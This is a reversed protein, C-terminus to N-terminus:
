LIEARQRRTEPSSLRSRKDTFVPADQHMNQNFYKAKKSKQKLLKEKVVEQVKPKLLYSTIPLLTRTRRGFMRQTPFSSIGESPTNRQLSLYIDPGAQKAIKM